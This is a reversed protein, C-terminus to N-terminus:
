SETVRFSYTNFVPDHIELEYSQGRADAGERLSEIEAANFRNVTVVLACAVIVAVACATAVVKATTSM